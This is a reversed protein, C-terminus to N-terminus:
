SLCSVMFGAMEHISVVSNVYGREAVERPMGYVVSSKKDQAITYGGAEKIAELGNAGDKGMGTFIAGICRKGYVKAVSLMLANVSPHNFEKYKTITFDIIPQGVNNVTVIMNRNGPAIYINGARLVDDKRGVVVNLSTLSDLRKAFTPIFNAPMHQAILVPVPLNEPLKTIVREVATPGGTSSGIVIVNYNVERLFTHANQNSKITANDTSFHKKNSSAGLRVKEVISNAIDRVKARNEAPKNLYDFAGLRLADMIPDLNTNGLASLIIIPINKKSLINKVAYIGDYHGMTMDLLLVDPDLSLTKDVAEKGDAATDIVRMGPEDNVIDSIILRMLGSDDAVIVKIDEEEM